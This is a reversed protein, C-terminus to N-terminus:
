NFIDKIHEIKEQGKKDEYVAVFDFSVNTSEFNLGKAKMYAQALKRLQMKKNHSLANLSAEYSEARYKVEIFILYEEGYRSPDIAIIDIEGRNSFHWNTDLIRYGQELLHDQVLKEAESGISRNKTNKKQPIKPNKLKQM